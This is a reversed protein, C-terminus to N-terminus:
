GDIHVTAEIDARTEAPRPTSEPQAALYRGAAMAANGAETITDVIDKPGVAAGATFVGAMSTQVPSLKPRPVQLFHDTGTTLWM